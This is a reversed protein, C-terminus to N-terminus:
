EDKSFVEVLKAVIRISNSKETLDDYCEICISNESENSVSIIEESNVVFPIYDFNDVDSFVLTIMGTEKMDDTYNKQQWYCFDIELTITKREKDYNISELLSDHLNYENFFKSLKM